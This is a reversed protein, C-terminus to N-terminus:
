AFQSFVATANALLNDLDDCVPSGGHFKFCGKVHQRRIL